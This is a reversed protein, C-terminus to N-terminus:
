QAAPAAEDGDVSADAAPTEAEATPDAAPTGTVDATAEPTVVGEATLQGIYYSMRNRVGSQALPDNLVAEFSSQAAAFDGAKYQALGILELAVRRMPNDDASLTAVRAEVDALSGSDVLLAGAQVLALERLRVNDATSALGDYAAVAAASDGSEALLKAKAFEALLPYGGTGDTALTDLQAQAGALDGQEALDMAAYYQESSGSSQSNAYWSWTENVAVALVVAVAGGIVFPAFRRWLNRMRESRLEEDVERFINDESM